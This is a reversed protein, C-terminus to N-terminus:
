PDVLVDKQVIKNTRYLNNIDTKHLDNVIISWIDNPLDLLSLVM